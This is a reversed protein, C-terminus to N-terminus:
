FHPRFQSQQKSNNAHLLDERRLRALEGVLVDPIKHIKGPRFVVELNDFQSLYTSVTVLRMNLRDPSVTNAIVTKKAMAVVASHDTFAIVTPAADVIHKIKKVVRMLGWLEMETLCYRGEAATLQRSLYM